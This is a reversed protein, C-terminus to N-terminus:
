DEVNEFRYMLLSIFFILMYALLGFALFYKLFIFSLFFLLLSLPLIVKWGLSM